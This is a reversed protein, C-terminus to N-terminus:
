AASRILGSLYLLALLVDIGVLVAYFSMSPNLFAHFLRNTALREQSFPMGVGPLEVQLSSRRLIENAVYRMRLQIKEQYYYSQSDLIYFFVIIIAGGVFLSLDLQKSIFSSVLVSASILVTVCLKKIEFCNKSLQLVVQHLQDLQVRDMENQIVKEAM